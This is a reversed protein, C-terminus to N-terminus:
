RRHWDSILLVITTHNNQINQWYIIVWLCYMLLVVCIILYNSQFHAINRLLRNTLRQVNAVTKFNHIQFFDSWPRINQRIHRLAEGLKPVPIQSLNTLSFRICSILNVSIFLLLFPFSKRLFILENTRKFAQIRPTWKM